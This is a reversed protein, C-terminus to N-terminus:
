VQLDAVLVGIIAGSVVSPPLVYLLRSRAERRHGLVRMLGILCDDLAGRGTATLLGRM